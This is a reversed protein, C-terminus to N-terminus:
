KKTTKDIIENYKNIAANLMQSASIVEPDQLNANKDIIYKNLINRLKEIDQLLIKIEDM